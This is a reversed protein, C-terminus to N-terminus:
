RKLLNNCHSILLSMQSESASRVRIRNRRIYKTVEEKISEPIQMVFSHTGKYKYFQDDILLFTEKREPMYNYYNEVSTVSHTMNKKWYWLCSIEGSAIVENFQSGDNPHVYRKFYHNGIIFESVFEKNLVILNNAGSFDTYRVILEQNYIDYKLNLDKYTRQNIVVTGPYIKNEGLFPHGVSNPRYDIYKRGNILNHDPGYSNDFLTRWHITAKSVNTTQAVLQGLFSFFILIIFFFKLIIKM